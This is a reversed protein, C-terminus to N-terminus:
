SSGLMYRMRHTGVNLGEVARQLPSGPNRDEDVLFSLQSPPSYVIHGCSTVASGISFGPSMEFTETGETVVM